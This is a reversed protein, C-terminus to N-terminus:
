TLSFTYIAPALFALIHVRPMTSKKWFLMGYSLFALMEFTLCIVAWMRDEWSTIIYKTQDFIQILYYGKSLTRATLRNRIIIDSSM